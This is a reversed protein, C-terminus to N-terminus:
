DGFKSTGIEAISEANKVGTVMIMQYLSIHRQKM